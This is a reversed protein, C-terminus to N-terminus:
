IVYDSEILSNNHQHLVPTELSKKLSWGSFLRSQLTCRKIGKLESWESLSRTEGNYTLRITMRTNNSQEKKTAWKCNDKSYGLNNNKRELSLGPPAEGMDRLFNEFDLWEDCVRIGRGGYHLFSANKPKTCRAIAGAWIRYTRTSACGHKRLRASAAEGRAQCGCSKPSKKGGLRSPFRFVIRGCDCSCKWEGGSCRELAALMGFKMGTYDKFRACGCSRTTGRRIQSADVLTQVGCECLCEWLIRGDKSREATERILTLKGHKEGSVLHTTTKMFARGTSLGTISIVPGWSSSPGPSCLKSKGDATLGISCPSLVM